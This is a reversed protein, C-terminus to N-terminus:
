RRLGTKQFYFTMGFGYCARSVFFKGLNIKRDLSLRELVGRDRLFRCLEKTKNFNHNTLVKHTTFM